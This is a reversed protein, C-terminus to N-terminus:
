GQRLARLRAAGREGLLAPIDRGSYFGEFTPIAPDLVVWPMKSRTWIQATPPCQAPDDLTGARVFAAKDGLAGYHSWLATLCQPCRFVAQGAGSASALHVVQPTPGEVHLLTTEIAANVAFASGVERQCDTCHCCNVAYPSDDLRYRIAGCACGGTAFPTPGTDM